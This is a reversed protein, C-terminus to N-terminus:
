FKIAPIKNIDSKNFNFTCKENGFYHDDFTFQYDEDGRNVDSVEFVLLFRFGVGALAMEELHYLKCPYTKNSINLGFDPALSFRVKNMEDDSLRKKAEKGINKGNKMKITLVLYIHHEFNKIAEDYKKKSLSAGIERLAQLEIPIFDVNYKYDGASYLKHLGNHEKKTYRVFGNPTVVSPECGLLVFGFLIFFM